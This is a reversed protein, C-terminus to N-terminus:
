VHGVVGVVTRWRLTPPNSAPVAGNAFRRGIAERDPWLRGASEEDAVVARAADAAGGSTLVRGRRLPTRMEDSSGRTARRQVAELDPKQFMQSATPGQATTQDIFTSGSSNRGTMPLLTTMGASQVGPLARVRDQLTGFFATTAAIDRYSAQPLSIRATLLR